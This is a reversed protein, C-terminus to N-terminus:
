AYFIKDILELYKNLALRLMKNDKIFLTSAKKEIQLAEEYLADAESISTNAQRNVDADDAATVSLGATAGIVLAVACLIGIYYKIDMKKEEM